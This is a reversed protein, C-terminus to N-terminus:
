KIFRTRNTAWWERNVERALEDVAAQTAQSKATAERYVLYDMMRQLAEPDMDAPLRIIIEDDTREITM